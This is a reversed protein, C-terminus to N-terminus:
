ENIPEEGIAIGTEGHLDNESQFDVLHADFANWDNTAIALVALAELKTLFPEHEQRISELHADPIAESFNADINPIDPLQFM